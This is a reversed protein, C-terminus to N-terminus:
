IDEVAKIFNSLMTFTYPISYAFWVKDSEYELTYDFSLQYNIRRYFIINYYIYKGM